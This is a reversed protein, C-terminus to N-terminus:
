GRQTRVTQADLTTLSRPECLKHVELDYPMGLWPLVVGDLVLDTLVKLVLRLGVLESALPREPLM